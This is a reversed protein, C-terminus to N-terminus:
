EVKFQAILENLGQVERSLEEASAALEQASFASEKAVTTVGEINKSIEEAGSSQENSSTAIQEVASVVGSIAEAIEQLSQDSQGVLELGDKSQSQIVEMSSVADQIDGQISEIMKGIEGTASVTREALKRVEDAVVAFGRGAEGARAAEINANLALLNTQDAIDDIVQIVNGIEESRKSLEQIQKAAQEVTNAVTEFGSVTKTVIERGTNATKGTHQASERTENANKSAELIMASMQEMTTAVETLQSQQEEAGAALHESAFSIQTTANSVQESAAQTKKLVDSLNSVSTNFAQAMAGIEDRSQIDVTVTLDNSALRELASVIKGVPKTIANAILFAVGVGLLIVMSLSVLILTSNRTASAHLEEVAIGALEKARAVNEEILPEIALAVETFAANTVEIVSDISVVQLFAAEYEDILKHLDEKVARSVNNGDVSNRLTAIGERVNKVYAAGRLEYNKEQRRMQLLDVELQLNKTGVIEEEMDRAAAVFRGWIGSTADGKQNKQNVIDVFGAQYEVALLDLQALQRFRNVGLDLANAGEIIQRIERVYDKVQDVYKSDNRLFYNKEARRAGLLAINMQRGLDQFGLDNVITTDINNTMSSLSNVAVVGVVVTAVLVIVFGAILKVKITLNSFIKTIGM